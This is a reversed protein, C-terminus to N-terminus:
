ITVLLHTSAMAYTVVDDFADDTRVLDPTAVALVRGGRGQNETRRIVVALRPSRSITVTLLMGCIM